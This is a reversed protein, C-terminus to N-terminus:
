AIDEKEYAKAMGIIEQRSLQRANDSSYEYDPPLNTKNNVFTPSVYFYNGKELTNIAEGSHILREHVREGPRRGIIQIGVDPVRCMEILALALEQMTCSPLKPVIILGNGLISQAQRILGVADELTLWFRTMKEDTITLRRREEIQKKFFPVVSGRSGLVNGYRVCIFRTEGWLSAQAFIREMLMKSAGYMSMPACAKDTSIGIVHEVGLRVAARAVARSGLVNIDMCEAANIEAQPVQKYAAAHIVLTHGRMSLSLWNEDRVDGLIYRYQPYKTRLQSQKVEDRSYITYEDASEARKLIARGLSGTGGTLFVKM